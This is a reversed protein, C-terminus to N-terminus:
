PSVVPVFAKGSASGNRENSTFVLSLLCVCLKGNVAVELWPWSVNCLMRGVVM